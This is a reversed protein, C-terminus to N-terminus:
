AAKLLKDWPARWTIPKLRGNAEADGPFTEKEPDWKLKRGLDIAILSLHALSNNRHGAECDYLPQQRSKVADLFDRKESTKFPLHVDKAGPTWSLLAENSAEIESPYKVQIWGDTGEWRILPKDTQCRLTVGNAYRFTADFEAIINWLNAQPHYKGTGEIEVPGTHDLGAGWLAIDNLHAGWNAMMGDAYDRVCLWGPRGKAEHRPHVRQLTYPRQAAPGQWMEYDLEAPVPMDPQAPLTPDKPTATLIRELRGIKGNRVLQAARHMVKSSRFESDTRFVRKTKTVLDSMLRGEAICRTLPKECAVDKGARLAAVTMPVHWHDPTSIMVADIDQRAILERWDRFTACGKFGGGTRSKAYADEIVKKANAMRWSDVDCVAVCQADAERLFGPINAYTAQRGVGIFGVTIRNGPAVAGDAGLASSPIITPTVAFAGALTSTTRLFARRSYKM